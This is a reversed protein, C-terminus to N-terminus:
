LYRCNVSYINESYCHGQRYGSKHRMSKFFFTYKCFQVHFFTSILFLIAVTSADIIIKLDAKSIITFFFCFNSKKNGMANEYYNLLVGDTNRTSRM